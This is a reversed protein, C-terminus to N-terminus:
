SNLNIRRCTAKISTAIAPLKKVHKKGIGTGSRCDEAGDYDSKGKEKRGSPKLPTSATEPPSTTQMPATVFLRLVRNFAMPRWEVVAFHGAGLFRKPCRCGKAGQCDQTDVVQLLGLAGYRGKGGGKM